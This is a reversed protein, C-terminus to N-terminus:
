QEEKPIDPYERSNCIANRISRMLIAKEKEYGVMDLYKKLDECEAPKTYEIMVAKKEFAKQEDTKQNSAFENLKLLALQKNLADQAKSIEGGDGSENARRLRLECKALDRYRNTLNTDLDFITKTYENFTNILYDYAEIDLEGDETLFKGWITAQESYDTEKPELEVEKGIELFNDLMVDSQWFGEVRDGTLELFKLYTLFWDPKRGTGTASRIMEETNEWVQRKFPIGLEALFIWLGAGESNTAQIYSKLKESCCPKCYPLYKHHFPNPSYHFYKSEKFTQCFPCYVGSTKVQEM